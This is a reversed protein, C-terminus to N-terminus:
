GAYHHLNCLYSAHVHEAPPSRRSRYPEICALTSPTSATSASPRTSSRSEERRLSLVPHTLMCAPQCWHWSLDCTPQAASTAASAAAAADLALPLLLGNGHTCLLEAQLLGHRTPLQADPSPGSPVPALIALPPATRATILRGRALCM